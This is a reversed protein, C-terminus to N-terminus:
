PIRGQTDLIFGDMINYLTDQKPIAPVSWAHFGFGM